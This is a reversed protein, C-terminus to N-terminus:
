GNKKRRIMSVFLLLLSILSFFRISFKGVWDGMIFLENINTPIMSLLFIVPLVMYSFPHFSKGFLQSLGLVAVFYAITFTSFLQMIWIVLLLSDFREFFFGTIEFSRVFSLVPWTQTLVGSVSLAGVVMILTHVYFVMPIGIGILTAKKAQKQKQMYFFIFLIVEYGAFSLSTSLVGKLVPKIGLGLVPRINDVEFIRIGLFMLLIFFLVTVPFIIEFMRALSNIGGLVLYLGIWLFPMIIAWTPTGQLLYLRTTEAMARVEFSSLTIYYLIAILCIFFGLWKGLITQVFQYLSQNPFRKCLKVMILGMVMTFVGSLIISLWGDPTQAKETVTRPLTLIGAGLIFNCIIIVAQVTSIRDIPKSDM